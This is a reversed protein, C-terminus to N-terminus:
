SLLTCTLGRYQASRPRWPKLRPTQRTQRTLYRFCRSLLQVASCQWGALRKAMWRACQRRRGLRPRSVCCHPPPWAKTSRRRRLAATSCGMPASPANEKSTNPFTPAGTLSTHFCNVGLLVILRAHAAPEWVAYQPGQQGKGMRCAAGHLVGQRLGCKCCCRWRQVARRRM